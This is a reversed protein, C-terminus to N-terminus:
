DRVFRVSFGNQKNIFYRYLKSYIYILNRYWAYGTSDETSSWFLAGGGEDYFPGDNSRRGEPFVNFGSNNNLSQDNGPTGPQIFFTLVLIFSYYLNGLM